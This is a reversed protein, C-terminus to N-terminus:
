DFSTDLRKYEKVSTYIEKLRAANILIKDNEAYTLVRDKENGSRYDIDALRLYKELAKSTMDFRAALDDCLVTSNSHELRILIDYLMEQDILHYIHPINTKKEEDPSKSRTKYDELDDVNFANSLSGRSFLESPHMKGRLIMEHQQQTVFYGNPYQMIGERVLMMIIKILVVFYQRCKDYNISGSEFQHYTQTNIGNICRNAIVIPTIEETIEPTVGCIINKIVDRDSCLFSVNFSQVTEDLYFNLILHKVFCVVHKYWTYEFTNWKYYITDSNNKLWHYGYGFLRCFKLQAEKDMLNILIEKDTIDAISVKKNTVWALLACLDNYDIKHTDIIKLVSNVQYELVSKIRINAQQYENITQEKVKELTSIIVTNFSQKESEAICEFFDKVDSPVRLSTAILKEDASEISDISNSALFKKIANLLNVHFNSFLSVSLNSM